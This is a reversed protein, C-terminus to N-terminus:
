LETTITSKLHHINVKARFLFSGTQPRTYCLKEIIAAAPNGRMEARSNKFLVVARGEGKVVGGCVVSDLVINMLVVVRGGFVM